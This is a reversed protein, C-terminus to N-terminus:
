EVSAIQFKVTAETGHYDAFSEASRTEGPPIPDTFTFDAAVIKGNADYSAFDVRVSQLQTTTTNRVEVTWIVAGGFAFDPDARWNSSAIQARGLNPDQTAFRVEGVKFDVTAESGLFDAFSQAARSEGPPIPGVIVFDSALVTGAADHTTFDIEASEVVQNSPNRVEVVWVVTGEAFDPDIYYASSTIQAAGGGGGASLQAVVTKNEAMTITCTPATACSSADGSWGDFTSGAGPAVTLGVDTGEAYQASCTGTSQANAALTCDLAPQIGAATQVKGAGSGSGTVTLTFQQSGPPNTVDDGGGCASLVILGMVAVYTRM